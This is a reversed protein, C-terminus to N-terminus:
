LATILRMCTARKGESGFPLNLLDSAFLQAFCRQPNGVCCGSRGMISGVKLLTLDLKPKKARPVRKAKGDGAADGSAPQKNGGARAPARHLLTGCQGLSCM